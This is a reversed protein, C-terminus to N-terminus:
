VHMTQEDINVDIASVGDRQSYEAFEAENIQEGGLACLEMFLRDSNTIANRVDDVTVDNAIYYRNTDYQSVALVVNVQEKEPYKKELEKYGETQFYDFDLFSLDKEIM